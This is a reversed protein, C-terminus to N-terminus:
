SAFRAPDLHPCPAADTRKLIREALLKGTLGSLTVGLHGHGTLAYVNAHHSLPGLIPLGDPTSARSGCWTSKVRTQSGFLVRAWHALQTWRKPNPPAEPRAFETTGALRVGDQMPTAYFYHELWGIPRTLQVDSPELVIHYGRESVLPFRYGMESLIDASPAGLAIVAYDATLTGADTYVTPREDADESVTKVRGQVFHAGNAMLSVFLRQTVAFPSFLHRTAPFYIGGYIKAYQLAPELTLVEQSTLQEYEVGHAARMPMETECVTRWANDSRYIWLCGERRVLSEANALEFTETFASGALDILNALRQRNRAFAESRSEQLFQRGYGFMKGAYHPRISIARDPRWLERPLSAVTSRSANPLVAYNAFIGANGYSAGNGPEEADVISVTFGYKQLWLAASLGALGAGLILVHKNNSGM